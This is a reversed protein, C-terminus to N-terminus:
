GGDRRFRIGEILVGGSSAQAGINLPGGAFIADVPVSIRNDLVAQAWAKDDTHRPVALAFDRGNIHVTLRLPDGDRDPYTPILDVVMRWRGPPLTISASGIVSRISSSALVSGNSGLSDIVQWSGRFDTPRILPDAPKAPPQPQPPAAVPTATTSASLAPLVPPSLRIVAFQGDAPEVSMIGRWKGGVLSNYDRTLEKIRTDAAHAEAGRQLAEALHEDHFRDHAEASFFRRNAEASAEVPYNLLEFFANRREPAINAGIKRVRAVADEFQGIRVDAQEVSYPSQKPYEGPLWWQLFEPRREFNLRYFDAFVHAIEDAQAADINEAAWHREFNRVGLARTGPLDWALSMFYDIDMEAPKIDGVNVIWMSRAGLDYARGMEEGVLAPPTTTLWLYSLPGGLYSLHYYVGSGGSRSREEPTPFHRIYGFNDDPWMITVDDPVKLGSRYVDLVEKYPTFVQPIRELDPSVYKRLLDRQDGIIGELLARRQAADGAAQMPSDHIGRMGLTYINEYRGNVQLREAWYKRVGEPNISYDYDSAPATWENVNNRLMPEAHSSGMVIAYLDALRANEPDSNFAPSIKHMAPWLTNAKLRLLLEFVKAYTKPGIGHHEPEFNTAAWPDLGWDEDNIFIGRYKVSPPGFRQTGARVYLSPQHLPTVDAWWYWPSVGIARSLEYIGYATGRRDSGAIVLARPIGPAPHEVTAIVFSEWAGSLKRADLKGSAILRDIASDHGITGAWIEERGSGSRKGTVSEIDRRLDEAAIGVVPYDGPDTIVQAAGARDTLTFDRTSPHTEIWGALQARAASLPTFLLALSLGAIRVVVFTDRLGRGAQRSKKYRAVELNM